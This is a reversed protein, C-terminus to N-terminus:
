HPSRMKVSYVAHLPTGNKALMKKLLAGVGAPGSGCTVAAFVYGPKDTFRLNALFQRVTNPVGGFYVPFVFGVTEQEKLDFTTQGDWFAQTINLLTEGEACLQRAVYTSNGTGSYYFIM